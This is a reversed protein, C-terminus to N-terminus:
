FHRLHLAFFQELMEVLTVAINLMVQFFDCFPNLLIIAELVKWLWGFEFIEVVQGFVNLHLIEVWPLL